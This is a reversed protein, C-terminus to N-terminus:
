GGCLGLDVCAGGREAGIVGDEMVAGVVGDEVVARMGVERAGVGRGEGGEGADGDVLEEGEFALLCVPTGLVLGAMGLGETTCLVLSAVGIEDVDTALLAGVGTGEGRGVMGGEGEM